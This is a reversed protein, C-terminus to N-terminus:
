VDVTVTDTSSVSTIELTTSRATGQPISYVFTAQASAGTELVGTPASYPPGEMATAPSGDPRTATVRVGDLDVPDPSLNTFTLQVVMGPGSVEGPYVATVQAESVSTVTVTLGESFRAPTRVPVPPLTRTGVVDATAAEEPGPPADTPAAPGASTTPPIEPPSSPPGSPPTTVPDSSAGTAPGATTTPAGATSTSTSGPASCAVLPALCLVAGTLGAAFRRAPRHPSRTPNM